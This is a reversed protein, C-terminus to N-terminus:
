CLGETLSFVGPENQGDPARLRIASSIPGDISRRAPTPNSTMPGHRIRLGSRSMACCTDSPTHEGNRNWM